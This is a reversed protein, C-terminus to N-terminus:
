VLTPTGEICSRVVAELGALNFPKTILHNAGALRASEVEEDSSVASFMIVPLHATRPNRRIRCCAEIGDLGGMMIDLIVLDPYERDIAALAGEGDVATVVEFGEIGLYMAVVRLLRPDDDVVLVRQSM